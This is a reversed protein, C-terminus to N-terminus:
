IPLLIMFPSAPLAEDEAELVENELVVAGSDGRFMESEAEIACKGHMM